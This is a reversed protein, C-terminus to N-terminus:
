PNIEKVVVSLYEFLLAGGDPNPVDAYRMANRLATVLTAVDCEATELNVELKIKM